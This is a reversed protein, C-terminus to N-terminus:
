WLAPQTVTRRAVVEGPYHPPDCITCHSVGWRDFWISDHTPQGCARAPPRVVPASSGPQVRVMGSRIQDEARHDPITLPRVSFTNLAVGQYVHTRQQGDRPRKATIGPHAARLDRTFTEKTGPRDRGEDQCWEKWAEFLADKEVAHAPGVICRDRVFAGVLSSLDELQRLADKSAGPYRFHGRDHLRDLGDLAWNFIGPAEALLADTLAPDEHGYFSRTLVHAVIRSALAGSSDTFRPIENTLIVFRTPLRGTWPERYKRDVTIADEGSISLLREVAVLTNRSGLRADSVIALPKGILPMLGFNTTLSSLTPGATNHPGILGALVRGITGKGSRKPGVLMFIKQLDTRDGLVYGMAEALTEITEIDDQWLDHLFTLWREPPAAHAEYAFPLSHQSFFAPRHGFLTRSPLHFLGNALSVVESAPWPGADDLWAPAPTGGDLHTLAKLADLCNGIKARNPEFPTPVEGAITAKLYEAHELRRYMLARISAEEAEPWSTGTWRYFDGRHHRLLVENTPSSWQQEVFMRAVAMPDSPPPVIVGLEAEGASGDSQVDEDRWLKALVRAPDSTEEDPANERLLAAIRHADRSM